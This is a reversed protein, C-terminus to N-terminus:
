GGATTFTSRQSWAVPIGDGQIRPRVRWHYRTNPQLAPTTWSNRPTAIAGHVLNSWVFSVAKAPDTEFNPDPSMQVEYYFVDRDSNEWRLAQAAATSAAGNAPAILTIRAADRVPTRFTRPESWADWGPDNEGLGTTSASVRVRWSYSMGPLLIYPGKDVDPAEVVFSTERNRILNLGPGDNNAPIVQLQYQTFAEPTSWTLAASLAPLTGGHAPGGLSPGKPWTSNTTATIRNGDPWPDLCDGSPVENVAGLEETFRPAPEPGDQGAESGNLHMASVAPAAPVFVRTEASSRGFVARLSLQQTGGSGAVGKYGPAGIGVFIRGKSPASFTPSFTRLTTKGDASRVTGDPDVTFQYDGAALGRPTQFGLGAAPDGSLTNFFIPTQGTAGAPALHVTIPVTPAPAAAFPRVTSLFEQEFTEMSLGTVQQLATGLQGVTKPQKVMKVLSALGLRLEWYSVAVYGEAYQLAFKAPDAANAFWQARTEIAPLPLYKGENLGNMTSVWRTMRFREGQCRGEPTSEEVRLGLLDALGDWFWGSGQNGSALAAFRNEAYEHGILLLSAKTATGVYVIMANLSASNLGGTQTKLAAAQDPPANFFGIMGQEYVDRDGALYILYTKDNFSDFLAGIQKWAAEYGEAYSQALDPTLGPSAYVGVNPGKGLGDMVLHPRLNLTALPQDPVGLVAKVSLWRLGPKATYSGTVPIAGVGTHTGGSVASAPGLPIGPGVGDEYGLLQLPASAASSLTVDFTFSLSINGGGAVPAAPVFRSAPLAISDGAAATPLFPPLGAAVGVLCALLVSFLRPLM